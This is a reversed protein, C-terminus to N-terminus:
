GFDELSGEHNLNHKFVSTEDLLNTDSQDEHTIKNSQGSSIKGREESRVSLPKEMNFNAELSIVQQDEYTNTVLYDDFGMSSPDLPSKCSLYRVTEDDYGLDHDNDIM